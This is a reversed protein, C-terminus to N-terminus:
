PTKHLKVFFNKQAKLQLVIDDGAISRLSLERVEVQPFAIVGEVDPSLLDLLVQGM